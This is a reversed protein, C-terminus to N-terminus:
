VRQVYEFNNEMFARSARIAEDETKFKWVIKDKFEYQSIPKIDKSLTYNQKSTIVTKGAM